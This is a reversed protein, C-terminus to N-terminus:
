VSPLNVFDFVPQARTHSFNLNCLPLFVSRFYTHEELQLFWKSRAHEQRKERNRRRRKRRSCARRTNKTSNSCFRWGTPKMLLRSRATLWISPKITVFDGLKFEVKTDEELDYLRFNEFDCVLIYKPLDADKIGPFYDKAQAHAKELNKGRSKFEILITGKWLLDIFGQRGDEKKVSQEFTAVRRRPIGFVNFFADMFSKAEAHENFDDKWEKSFEIARSKIENWSLAM